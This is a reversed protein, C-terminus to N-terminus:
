EVGFTLIFKFFFLRIIRGNIEYFPHLAILECQYYAIKQALEKKDTIFKLFNDQKLKTFIKKSENQIYLGKCFLTDKKAMDFDRYVGAWEYLSIFIQKHLNKYYNEDFKTNEDLKSIFIEMGEILLEAEIEHLINKDKINLKNIPINSNPYYIKSATLQYKSM